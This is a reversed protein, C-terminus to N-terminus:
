QSLESNIEKVRPHNLLKIFKPNTSLKQIDGRSIADMIEPDNLAKQFDPDQQLLYILAMVKENNMMQNQLEQVDANNSHVGVGQASLDSLFFIVGLMSLFIVFVAGLRKM